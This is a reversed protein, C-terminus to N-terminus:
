RGAVVYGNAIRSWRLRDAVPLLSRRLWPGTPELYRSRGYADGDRVFLEQLVEKVFVCKCCNSGLEDIWFPLM